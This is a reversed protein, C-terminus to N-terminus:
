SLAFAVVPLKVNCCNLEDQLFFFLGGFTLSSVGDPAVYGWWNHSHQNLKVTLKYLKYYNVAQAKCKLLTGTSMDQMVHSVHCESSVSHEMSLM